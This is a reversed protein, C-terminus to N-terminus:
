SAFRFYSNALFVICSFVSEKLRSVPARVPALMLSCSAAIINATPALALAGICQRPNETPHRATRDMM